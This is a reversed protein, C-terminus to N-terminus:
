CARRICRQYPRSFFPLSILVDDQIAISRLSNRVEIDVRIIGEGNEVFGIPIAESRIGDISFIRNDHIAAIYNMRVEGALRDALRRRMEEAMREFGDPAIRLSISVRIRMFGQYGIRGSQGTDDRVHRSFDLRTAFGRAPAILPVPAANNPGEGPGEGPGENGQLQPLQPFPFPERNEQRKEVAM